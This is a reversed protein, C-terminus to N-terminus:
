SAKRIAGLTLKPKLANVGKPKPRAAEIEAARAAALAEAKARAAKDKRKKKWEKMGAIRAVANDAEAATVVGVEHGLLNIRAAGERCARCYGENSVYYRMATSIQVKTLTPMALAIEKHIGLALPRRRQEYLAFCEPFKESLLKIIAQADIKMAAQEM